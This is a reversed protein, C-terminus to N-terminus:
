TRGLTQILQRVKEAEQVHGWGRFADLAPELYSSAKEFDGLGCYVAGINAQDVAVGYEFGAEDDLQLAELHLALASPLDDADQLLFGLSRISAAEGVLNGAEADLERAQEFCLQAEEREQMWYHLQGMNYLTAAVLSPFGLGGSATGLQICLKYAERQCQLATHLDGQEKAVCARETLEIIHAFRDDQDLINGIGLSQFYIVIDDSSRMSFIDEM